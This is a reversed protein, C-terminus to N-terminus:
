HPPHAAFLTLAIYCAAITLHLMGEMDLHIAHPAHAMIVAATVTKGANSIDM